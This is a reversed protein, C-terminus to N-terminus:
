KREYKWNRSNGEGIWEIATAIRKVRTQAQKAEMVWEIYERRKGPPFSEFASNAKPNGRLAKTLDAPVALKPKPERSMRSKKVGAANQKMAFKICRKLEADTPLDALSTIKGSEGRGQENKEAWSGPEQHWFILACYHKFAAM